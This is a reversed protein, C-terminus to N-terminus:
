EGPLVAERRLASESSKETVQAEGRGRRRKWIAYGVAGIGGVFVIVGLWGFFGLGGEAPVQKFKPLEKQLQTLTVAVEGLCASYGRKKTCLAMQEAFADQIRETQKTYEEDHKAEAVYHAIDAKHKEYNFWLHSIRPAAWGCTGILISAGIWPALRFLIAAVGPTAEAALAAIGLEAPPEPCPEFSLDAPMVVDDDKFERGVHIMPIPTYVGIGGAARFLQVNRALLQNVRNAADIYDRLVV